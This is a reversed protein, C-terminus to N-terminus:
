AGPSSRWAKWVLYLLLAHIGVALVLVIWDSNTVPIPLVQVQESGGPTSTLAISKPWGSNFLRYGVILDVLAFFLLLVTLPIRLRYM